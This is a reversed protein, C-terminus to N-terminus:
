KINESECNPHVFSIYPAIEKIDVGLAELEEKWIGWWEEAYQVEDKIRRFGKVFGIYVLRAKINCKDCFHLFALRNALQYCDTEIWKKDLQVTLGQQSLWEQTSKFADNISKLSSESSASCKQFSEAKHAKAEVFFWTEEIKFVGDWNMSTGRQPWYSNWETEIETYKEKGLEKFCSMGKWEGDGSIREDDYPFDLWEIQGDTNTAEHILKNLENRHHGLFRMLQFESGYGLGMEAM